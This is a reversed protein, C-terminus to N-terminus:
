GQAAHARLRVTDIVRAYVNRAIDRACQLSLSFLQGRANIEGAGLTSGKALADLKGAYAFARGSELVLVGSPWQASQSESWRLVVGALSESKNCRRM